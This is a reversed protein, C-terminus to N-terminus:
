LCKINIIETGYDKYEQKSVTSDQFQSLGAFISGGIWTSYKRDPPAIIRIRTTPPALSILEMQMRETMGAFMSTGGSLVINGFLHKRAEEACKNISNFTSEHIGACNNGIMSPKFLPETCKFRANGISVVQGDPLEFSVHRENVLAASDTESEFHLVVHGLKEKIDRVIDEKISYYGMEELLKILYETLQKGGFDMKKLTHLLCNGQYVPVIQCTDYGCNLVVGNYRGSAYLSLVPGKAIYLAPVNFTEFMIEAMKERNSNLNLPSETLIATHEEPAVRLENYFTHHWIKEMEEFDVILGREIPYNKVLIGKKSWAEDGVYFYKKVLDGKQRAVVSPFVARPADDGGFGAKMMRSGNDIVVLVVEEM